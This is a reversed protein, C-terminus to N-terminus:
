PAVPPLKAALAEAARAGRALEDEIGARREGTDPQDTLELLVCGVYGVECLAAAVAGWDIAGDGPPMHDDRVGRNDQLHTTIL